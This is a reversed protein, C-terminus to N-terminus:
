SIKSWNNSQTDLALIHKKIVENKQLLFEPDEHIIQEACERCKQLLPADENLDAIMLDLIGSQKTGMIDGPGRLKLDVRAIEFGDNTRVMTELRERGEKTVKTGAMLICFSQHEARGVRGRLQHLQSLGFREANEIVMITANPIDIGVEIVTTAVMIQTENKLFRMMELEKAESTMKGHLIGIFYEPFARTISEYGDMLYKLDVKESEEILPYVIFAQRGQKIQEKIFGFVRLRNADSQYHTKINKRGAPLEDITSIDLDGYVTMALTRPIPTATMVLVHPALEHSKKWLKARQEVGFRHQEDIIIMGLKQFVVSEEILAHTGVIIQLEGTALTKLIEKKEKKKTSSTLKAIKIGLLESFKGIERFHQETLIETPAMIATQYGNDLAILIIIFAVITKGSGVDGQLLRNMQKGSKLDAFIEKIVRKQANTLEFPIHEKYFKTLLETKGFLFGKSKQKRNNKLAILKLQLYFLEEFKLRKKAALLSDDSEPFHINKLATSKPILKQETLIYAPLNEQIHPIVLPLLTQQIKAIGKSDLSWKKMVETSHYVPHMFGGKSNRETLIEIEPHLINISNNFANPKGYVVYKAGKQLTKLLWNVGQFWILELQGTEDKLKAILRMRHNDGALEIHAITGIVQVSEYEEDIENIKYFHTRDEYRFPYYQIMDAFVFLSVEKKLIAAKAPGVGKIREIDTQFFSAM